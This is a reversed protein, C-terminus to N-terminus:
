TTQDVLDRIIVRLDRVVTKLEALNSTDMPGLLSAKADELRQARAQQATQQANRDAIDQDFAWQETFVNKRENVITRKHDPDPQPVETVPYFGFQDATDDTPTSWANDAIRRTLRSPLTGVVRDITTGDTSEVYRM